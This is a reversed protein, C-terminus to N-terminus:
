WCRRSHLIWRPLTDMKMRHLAPSPLWRWTKMPLPIQRRDAM